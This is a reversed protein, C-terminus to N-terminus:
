TIQTAVCDCCVPRSFKTAIINCCVPRLSPVSLRSSSFFSPLFTFALLHLLQRYDRLLPPEIGEGEVFASPRTAVIGALLCSQSIQYHPSYHFHGVWYAFSLPAIARLVSASTNPQITALSPDGFRRVGAHRSRHSSNPLYSTAYTRATISYPPASNPQSRTAVSM